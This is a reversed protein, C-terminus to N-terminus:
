TSQVNVTKHQGTKKKKKKRGNTEVVCRCCAGHVRLKSQIKQVYFSVTVADGMDKSNIESKKKKIFFSTVDLIRATNKTICELKFDQVQM